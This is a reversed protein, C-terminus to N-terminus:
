AIVKNVRYHLHRQNLNGRYGVENLKAYESKLPCPCTINNLFFLM